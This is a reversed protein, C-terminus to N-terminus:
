ILIKYFFIKLLVYFILFKKIFWELRVIKDIYLLKIIIISLNIILKKVFEIVIIEFFIWEDMFKNVDIMVKKEIWIELWGVLLFWGYLCLFVFFIVFVM